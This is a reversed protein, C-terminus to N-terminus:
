RSLEVSQRHLENEISDDIPLFDTNPYKRDLATQLLFDAVAPNRPLLPGHLYSGIVNKTIAGETTDELNNGYLKKTRGFPQQGAQLDTQGSHNEFGTITGFKTEVTINGINRKDGGTTACDFIGIGELKEQQNTVFWNGFLQFSGCIVLMPLGDQAATRFEAGMRPIMKSVDIQGSDQGGGGVILDIDSISSTLSGIEIVDSTIGRWALRKQLTVINGQDGYINLQKPFLQGIIIKRTM